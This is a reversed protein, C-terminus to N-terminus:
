TRRVRRATTDAMSAARRHTSRRRVPHGGARPERAARLGTRRPAGRYAGGGGLRHRAESSEVRFPHKLEDIEVSDRYMLGAIVPIAYNVWGDATPSAPGGNTSLMMRNVYRANHRRHDQRVAGGHRGSVPAAKPWGTATASSPL